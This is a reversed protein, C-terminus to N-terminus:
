QRETIQFSGIMNQVVPLLDNFENNTGGHTIVYVMGDVITRNAYKKFLDM